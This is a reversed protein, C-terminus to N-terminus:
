GMSPEVHLQGFTSERPCGIECRWAYDYSDLRSILRRWAPREEDQETFAGAACGGEAAEEATERLWADRTSLLKGSLPARIEPTGPASLLEGQEVSQFNRLGARLALRPDPM